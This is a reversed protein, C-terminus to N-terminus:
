KQTEEQKSKRMSYWVSFALIAGIIALSIGSPIHYVGSILMKIGVFLLVVAVGKNLYEFRRILDASLFYLSRLGLIAFINSTFVIFPDRTVAFIAPISDVAFIVDSLELAILAIFLSTVHWKGGEKVFFKGDNHHTAVPLKNSLMRLLKSEGESEHDATKFMKIATFLLFGGFVYMLWNFRALLATGAFIALGRMVVAGLIGYFLVRHQYKPEVKFFAFVMVFVFINDVSLSKEILFGALYEQGKTAGEFYGVGLGFLLGLSIWFASWGIAEKTSFVHDKKHFVGLDLILLLLIFACFLTYQLWVNDHLLQPVTSIFELM